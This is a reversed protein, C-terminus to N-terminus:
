GSKSSHIAKWGPDGGIVIWIYSLRAARTETSRHSHAFLRIQLRMVINWQWSQLHQMKNSRVIFQLFVSTMVSWFEATLFGNDTLPVWRALTCEKLYMPLVMVSSQRSSLSRSQLIRHAVVEKPRRHSLSQDECSMELFVFILTYLVAIVEARSKPASVHVSYWLCKTRSRCTWCRCRRVVMRTGYVSLIVLSWIRSLAPTGPISIITRFICSRHAPWTTHMDSSRIGFCNNNPSSVIPVLVTPRTSRRQFPESLSSKICGFMEVVCHCSVAVSRLVHRRDIWSLSMSYSSEWLSLPIGGLSSTSMMDYHSMKLVVPRRCTDVSGSFMCYDCRCGSGHVHMCCVFLVHCMVAMTTDVPLM